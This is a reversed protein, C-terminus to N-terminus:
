NLSLCKVWSVVGNTMSLMCICGCVLVCVDDSEVYVFICMLELMVLFFGYRLMLVFYGGVNFGQLIFFGGFDGVIFYLACGKIVVMIGDFFRVHLIM